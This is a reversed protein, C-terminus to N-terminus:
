VVHINSISYNALYYSFSLKGLLFPALFVPSALMVDVQAKMENRAYWNTGDVGLFQSFEEITAMIRENYMPNSSLILVVPGNHTLNKEKISALAPLIYSLIRDPEQNACVILNQQGFGIPWV